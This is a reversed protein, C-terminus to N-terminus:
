NGLWHELTNTSFKQQLFKNQFFPKSLLNVQKERYNQKRTDLFTSVQKPQTQNPNKRSRPALIQTAAGFARSGCRSGASARHAAAAPYRPSLLPELGAEM